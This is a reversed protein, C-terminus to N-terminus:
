DLQGHLTGENAYNLKRGNPDLDLRLEQQLNIVVTQGSPAYIADFSQKQREKIWETTEHIGTYYANAEAFKTADGTLSSISSTTGDPSTFTQNDIHEQKLASAYGEAGALLARQLLFKPADTVREGPICTNGWPDSIYGISNNVSAEGDKPRSGADGPYASRVTGDNFVFTAANLTGRVCSLPWDGTAYGEFIMGEIEAPLDKFNATLNDRGVVIKFPHPNKIEDTLYVRGILSTLTTSNILASLDALTYYPIAEETQGAKNKASALLPNAAAKQQVSDAAKGVTNAANKVFEPTFGTKEGEKRVPPVDLPNIWFVGSVQDGNVTSGTQYSAGEGLGFGAPVETTEEVSTLRNNM